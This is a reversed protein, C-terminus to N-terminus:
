KGALAAEMHHVYTRAIIEAFGPRLPRDSFDEWGEPPDVILVTWAAAVRQRDRLAYMRHLAARDRDNEAGNYLASMLLEQADSEEKTAARPRGDPWLQKEFRARMHDALGSIALDLDVTEGVGGNIEDMRREIRIDDRATRDVRFRFRVAQTEDKTESGDAALWSLPNSSWAEASWTLPVDFEIPVSLTGGRFPM